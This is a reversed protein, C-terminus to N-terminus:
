PLLAAEPTSVITKNSKRPTVIIRRGDSEWEMDCMETMIDLIQKATLERLVLNMNGKSALSPHTILEYEYLSAIDYIIKIPKTELYNTSMTNEVDDLALSNLEGLGTEKQAESGYLTICAFIFIQIFILKNM